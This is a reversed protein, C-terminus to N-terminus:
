GEQAQNGGAEKAVHKTQLGAGEARFEMAVNGSVLIVRRSAPFLSRLHVARDIIEADNVPLRITM